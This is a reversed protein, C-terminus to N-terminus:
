AATLVWISLAEGTFGSESFSRVAYRRPGIQSCGSQPLSANAAAPLSTRVQGGAARVVVDAANLRHVLKIFGIVDQITIQLRGLSRGNAARLETGSGAVDFSTPNADLVFRSGRQVRIRVVHNVLQRNAEALAAGLHGGSLASLLTRDHALQGLDAHMVAGQAETLYRAKAANVAQNVRSLAAAPCSRPAVSAVARPQAPGALLLIWVPVAAALGAM